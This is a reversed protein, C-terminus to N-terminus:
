YEEGLEMHSNVARIVLAELIETSYISARGVNPETADLGKDVAKMTRWIDRKTDVHLLNYVHFLHDLRHIIMEGRTMGCHEYGKELIRDVAEKTMGKTAYYEVWGDYTKLTWTSNEIYYDNM